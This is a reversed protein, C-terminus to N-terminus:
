YFREGEIRAAYRVKNAVYEITSTPDIDEISMKRFELGKNALESVLGRKLLRVQDNTSIGSAELTQHPDSTSEAKGAIAKICRLVIEYAQALSLM